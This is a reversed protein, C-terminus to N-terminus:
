GTLYSINNSMPPIVKLYEEKSKENEVRFAGVLLTVTILTISTIPAVYAVIQFSEDLNTSYGSMFICNVVVILLFVMLVLVAVCIRIALTRHFRRQKSDDLESEHKERALAENDLKKISNSDNTSSNEGPPTKPEKPVPPSKM